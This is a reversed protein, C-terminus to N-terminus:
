DFAYPDDAYPNLSGKSFLDGINSPHPNGGKIGKLVDKPTNAKPTEIKKHKRPDGFMITSKTKKRKTITKGNSTEVEYERHTVKRSHKPISMVNGINANEVKKLLNSIPTQTTRLYPSNKAENEVNVVEHESRKHGDSNRM